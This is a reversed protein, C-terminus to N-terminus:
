HRHSLFRLSDILSGLRRRQRLLVTGFPALELAVQGEPWLAERMRQRRAQWGRETGRQIVPNCGDRGFDHGRVGVDMHELDALRPSLIARQLDHMVERFHARCHPHDSPRLEDLYDLVGAFFPNGDDGVAAQWPVLDMNSGVSGDPRRELWCVSPIKPELTAEILHWYRLFAAEPVVYSFEDQELILGTARKFHPAPEQRHNSRAFYVGHWKANPWASDLLLQTRGYLGSDVLLRAATDPCLADLHDALLAEQEEAHTRLARALSHDGFFLWSISQADSAVALHPAAIEEDIIAASTAPLFAIALDRLSQAAFERCLSDIAREPARLLAVKTAVLRSIMFNEHRIASTLGMRRLWRQHIARLRFGGRACYLAVAPSDHTAATLYLELRRAFEAFVPGLTERGFNRRRHFCKNM